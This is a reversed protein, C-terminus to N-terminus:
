INLFVGGGYSFYWKDSNEGDEFVRAVDSHGLIGVDFPAVYNRVKFLSARLDANTYSSTRGAFRNRQVGRFNSFGNLFSAQFFAYDGVNHEVGTRVNFTTQKRMFSVPLYFRLECLLKVYEFNYDTVSTNWLANAKLEIGRSPYTEHDKNSFTYNFGAGVFNQNELQWSDIDLVPVMDFTARQYQGVLTLSQSQSKSTFKLGPTFQYNNMRVSNIELDDDEVDIQNGAGFYQYILPNNIRLMGTLDAKGILDIYDFDYYINFGESGFAYNATLKHKQSYPAKKFGQKVVNIGPGIYFGDNVNFGISVAPAVKDHVFDKRDFDYASIEPMTKLRAESGLEFKNKGETDYIKTMKRLGSVNSKDEIKDKQFGAVIRVLISKKAEGKIIYEDNGEIGYLRIEKTEEPYFVRHYYRESKKKKGKKRPYVNVEVSGDVNRIVEFFDDKLTGPISIEKALVDYYLHAFEVLKDRRVKLTAIIEEGTVDYGEPPLEKIAEEIVEDTLKQQLEKAIRTWDEKSTGILFFRDFYRANFNQGEIDRIDESFPQFKRIAWKRNAINM